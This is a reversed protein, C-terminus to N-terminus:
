RRRASAKKKAASKKKSTARGKPAAAEFNSPDPEVQLLMRAEERRQFHERYNPNPQPDTFLLREHRSEPHFTVSVVHRIPPASFMRAVAGVYGDFAKISGPPCSLTYITGSEPDDDPRMVALLRTNKCAKADGVGSGFENAWCEACTDAQLESAKDSPVLENPREGQAWCVPPAPNQADYPKDYYLNWARFDLIVLPLPGQRQEGDPFTFIKDKISIRNSEPASIRDQIAAVERSLEEDVNVLARSASAKKKAAM